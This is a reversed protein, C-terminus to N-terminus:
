SSPLTLYFHADLPTKSCTPQVLADAGWEPASHTTDNTSPLDQPHILPSILVDLLFWSNISGKTPFDM